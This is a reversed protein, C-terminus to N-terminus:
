LFFISFWLLKKHFFCFSSECFSILSAEEKLASLFFLQEM